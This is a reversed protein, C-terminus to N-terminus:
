GKIRTQSYGKFSWTIEDASSKNDKSFSDLVADPYVWTRVSGDFYTTTETVRFRMNKQGTLQAQEIDYVIDDYSPDVVGGSVDFEWGEFIIQTRKGVQGLPQNQKQSTKQDSKFSDSEMFNVPGNPGYFAITVQSGLIRDQAFFQLNLERL